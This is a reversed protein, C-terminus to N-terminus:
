KLLRGNIEHTRCAALTMSPGHWDSLRHTELDEASSKIAGRLEASTALVLLLHPGHLGSRGDRRIGALLREVATPCREDGFSLQETL